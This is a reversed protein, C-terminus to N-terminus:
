HYICDTYKYTYNKAATLNPKTQQTNATVKGNIILNSCCSMIQITLWMHHTIGRVSLTIKSKAKNAIFSKSGCSSDLRHTCNQQVSHRVALYTMCVLIIPKISLVDCTRSKEQEQSSYVSLDSCCCHLCFKIRKHEHM